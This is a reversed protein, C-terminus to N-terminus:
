ESLKKIFDKSVTKWTCKGDSDIKEVLLTIQNNKNIPRCFDGILVKEHPLIAEGSISEVVDVKILEILENIFYEGSIERLAPLWLSRGDNGGARLGVAALAGIIGTKEGCLGELFIQHNVALQYARNETLITTKAKNGFEIIEHDIKDLEAVCLGSDAGQASSQILFKRCFSIIHDTTEISNVLLSASSNHSTYPIRDDVLLQHRSVQLLGALCNETLQTGLQRALFGTGRSDLNDTDDIGILLKM